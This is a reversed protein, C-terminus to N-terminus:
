SVKPLRGMTKLQRMRRHFTRSSKGTEKVFADIRDQRKAFEQVIKELTDLEAAEEEKKTPVYATM